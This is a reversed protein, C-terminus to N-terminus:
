VFYYVLFFLIMLTLDSVSQRAWANIIGMARNSFSGLYMDYRLPLFIISGTTCFINSVVPISRCFPPPTWFIRIVICLVFYNDITTKITFINDELSFDCGFLPDIQQVVFNLTMLV